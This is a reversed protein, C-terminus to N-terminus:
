NQVCIYDIKNGTTATQTITIATNSITYAFAALQTQSDVSCFPANTHVDGFTIVVSTAATGSTTEGATDTSRAAITPSGTGTVVPITGTFKASAGTIAGTASLSTFAGTGPTTAGINTNDITAPAAPNTTPASFPFTQDGKNTFIITNGALAPAISASLLAIAASAALLSKLSRM